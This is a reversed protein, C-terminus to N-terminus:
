GDGASLRWLFIEEPTEREAWVQEAHACCVVLIERVGTAALSELTYELMPINVLPLLVQVLSSAICFPQILSHSLSKLSQALPSPTKGILSLSLPLPARM